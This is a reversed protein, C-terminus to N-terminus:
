VLELLLPVLVQETTSGSCHHRFVSDMGAHLCGVMVQQLLLVATLGRLAGEVEQGSKNSKSSERLQRCEGALWAPTFQTDGQGTLQLLLGMTGLFATKLTPRMSRETLYVRQLTHAIDLPTRQTPDAASGSGSGSGPAPLDGSIQWRLLTSLIDLWQARPGVNHEVRLARLCGTILAAAYPALQQAESAAVQKALEKLIDERVKTQGQEARLLVM